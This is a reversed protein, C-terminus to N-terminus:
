VGYEAGEVRCGLLQRMPACRRSNSSILKYLLELEGTSRHLVLHTANISIVDGNSSKIACGESHPNVFYYVDSHPDDSAVQMRTISLHAPFPLLSTHYCALIM